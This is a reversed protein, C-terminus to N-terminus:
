GKKKAAAKEKKEAKAEAAEKKATEHEVAVVAGTMADVNVEEMGSTGKKKLEISWILKGNEREIEHGKVAAGPVQKMATEKATNWSIKAEKMLAKQSEEKKQASAAHPAMLAGAVIALAVTKNM